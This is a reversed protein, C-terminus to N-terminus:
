STPKGHPEEKEPASAAHLRAILDHYEEETLLSNLVQLLSNTSLQRPLGLRLELASRLSRSNRQGTLGDLFLQAKTIGATHTVPAADDLITAGARRLAAELVTPSMGEVGLLGAKGPATKRREKGPLEPIYAHKLLAPDIAGKLFNRIVFGAGDSDTLVILGRRQALLRLMNLRDRQKFVQFGGTEIIVTDVVQSLAIKDYRGEVVLAEKIKIM